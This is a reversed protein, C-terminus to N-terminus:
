GQGQVGDATRGNTITMGSIAITGSNITFIRYIGGTDRRVTLLASGPGTITMDSFLTPLAGTLNITGSVSFDITDAGFLANAEQIAARLTCQDGSTGSDVDCIGNGVSADAQDGLTNVTLTSAVPPSAPPNLLPLLQGGSQNRNAQTTPTSRIALLAVVAIAFLCFVRRTSLSFLPVLQKM